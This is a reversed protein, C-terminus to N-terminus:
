RQPAASTGWEEIILQRERAGLMEISSLSQDPDNAVAELFNAFHSAFRLMTAREFLDTAYIIRGGLNGDRSVYLHAEIDFRSHVYGSHFAMVDAGPLAPVEVADASGVSVCDFWVQIIPYRSLDREPRLREVLQDFPLDQNEYADLIADNVQRALQTFRLDAKLRVRIPVSNTFFGILGPSRMHHRSNVGCGVIIDTEGTYRGLVCHYASMTIALITLGHKQAVRSLAAANGSISLEVFDAQHSPLAPRPHDAPLALAGPAGELHQKWYAFQADLAQPSCAARQRAAFDAYQWRLAPLVPTAGSRLARYAEGLEAAFIRLSDRDFAIHHVVIALVHDNVSLRILMARLVPGRELDFATNAARDVAECARTEPDPASSVDIEPLEFPGPPKAVQYPIGADVDYRTRLIEHRDVIHALARALTPAHLQGRIRYAVPVNYATNGPCLRDLFWLRHQGFSLAPREGRTMQDADPSNFIGQASLRRRLIIERAPSLPDVSEEPM